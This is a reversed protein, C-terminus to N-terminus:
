PQRDIGQVRPARVDSGPQINFTSQLVNVVGWISVMVFLAIIGYIMIAVAEKRKDAEGSSLIFNALGWFFYILALAVVIPTAAGVLQAVVGLIGGLTEASAVVPAFIAVGLLTAKLHNTM